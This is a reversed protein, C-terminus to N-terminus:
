LADVKLRGPFGVAHAPPVPHAVQQGMSDAGIARARVQRPSAPVELVCNRHRGAVGLADLVHVRGARVVTGVGDAVPAQPLLQGGPNLQPPM